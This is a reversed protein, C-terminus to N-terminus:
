SWVAAIQDPPKNTIIEELDSISFMSIGTHGAYEQHQEQVPISHLLKQDMNSGPGSVNFNNQDDWRRPGEQM